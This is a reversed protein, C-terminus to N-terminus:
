VTLNYSLAVFEYSTLDFDVEMHGVIEYADARRIRGTEMMMRRGFGIAGREPRVCLMSGKTNNGTTNHIYGSSDTLGYDESPVVPSGFIKTIEGDEVTAPIHKDRTLVEGLAQMKYYTAIDPLWALKSPTLGFKGNTGMLKKTAIFDEVTLAGGDRANAGSGDVLAHHRLGDLLLLRWYTSISGNGYDSINTAGPTEDGSIILEDLTHAGSEVFEAQLFPLMPVLSRENLEGTWIVIASAKAPTLTLNGTTVQSIRSTIFANSYVMEAADDTQPTRYWTVGGSQVPFTYSEGEIEVQRFLGAVLAANRVQRFLERSYFVPIWEDGATSVDSGMLEDSKVSLARLVQADSKHHYVVPAAMKGVRRKVPSEDEPYYLPAMGGAQVHKVARGHVARKYDQSIHADHAKLVMYGFALEPASFQDFPGYMELRPQEQPAGESGTYDPRDLGIGLEKVMAQAEEKALRKIEAQREAERREKEEAAEAERAEIAKLTREFESIQTETGELKDNFEKAQDADGGELAKAAKDVLADRKTKLAALRKLLEEKM